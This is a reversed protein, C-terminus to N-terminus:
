NYKPLKNLQELTLEYEPFAEKTYKNAIDPWNKEIPENKPPIYRSKENSDKVRNSNYYKINPCIYCRDVNRYIKTIIDDSFWTKVEPPFLFGLREYLPRGFFVNELIGAQDNILREFWFNMDVGGCIIDDDHKKMLNVFYDDWNKVIHVIDSGCQYFWRNDKDKFAKDLLLNWAKTPNGNCERPFITLNVKPFRKVLLDQHKVFFEDNEDYGLYLKYRHKKSLSVILPDLMKTILDIDSLTKWDQNKSCLPILIALQNNSM